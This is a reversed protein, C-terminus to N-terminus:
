TLAGKYAITAVDTADLDGRLIRRCGDLTAALPVHVGPKGTYAEAVHFPQTLFWRLREARLLTRRDEAGARAVAAAQVEAHRAKAEDRAGLALMEYLAADDTLARAARLTALAAQALEVHERGVVDATLTSSRCYLPDIAPWLGLTAQLPSCFLRADLDQAEMGYHPNQAQRSIIWAIKVRGHMDVAMTPDSELMEQTSPVDWNSVFFFLAQSDTGARLNRMLEQAVVLRGVGHTGFFGLSGETRLPCFLDVAKIGTELLRPLGRHPSRMHRITAKIAAESFGASDVGESGEWTLRRETTTPEDGKALCVLRGDPQRQIVVYRSADKGGRGGRLVDFLQPREGSDPARAEVLCDHADLVDAVRETFAPGLKQGPLAQDVMTEYRGKFALRAKHLRSVVTTEPVGLFQAVERQSYDHLYFLVVAERQKAPLAGLARVVADVTAVDSGAPAPPADDDGLPEWRREKRRARSACRFVIGRLWPGFAEAQRLTSLRQYAVLFAEQAVDQAKHFDGVLAFAYGHALNQYRTVLARFAAKDGAIARDIDAGDGDISITGM